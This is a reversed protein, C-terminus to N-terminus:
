LRTRGLGSRQAMGGVEKIWGSAEEIRKRVVQSGASPRLACLSPCRGLCFHWIMDSAGFVAWNRIGDNFANAGNPTYPFVDKPAATRM